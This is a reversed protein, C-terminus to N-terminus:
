RCYHLVDFTPDRGRLYINMGLIKKQIAQGSKSPSSPVFFYFATVTAIAAISVVKFFSCYSTSKLSATM